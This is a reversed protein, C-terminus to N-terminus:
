AAGGGEAMRKKQLLLKAKWWTLGGGAGYGDFVADAAAFGGRMAVSPPVALALMGASRGAELITHGGGVVLTSGPSTGLSDALASMFQPSILGAREAAAMMKPDVAMGMGSARQLNYARVFEQAAQSKARAQAAAVQQEFSAGPLEDGAEGGSGGQPPAAAGEAGEGGFPTAGSGAGMSVVRLQFARNPGLNLMASSVLGDEPVSATAAVVAVPAGEALADDLFQAVGPRVPVEGKATMERLIRVKIAHVKKLFAGRESSALMMPWGRIGYYAAIVGEGTGDGLRMLDYFIAANWNTCDHGIEHADVLAGDCEIILGLRESSSSSSAEEDSSGSGAAAQRWRRHRQVPASHISAARSIRAAQVSRQLRLGNATPAAAAVSAM